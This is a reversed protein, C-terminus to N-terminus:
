VIELKPVPVIFKVGKERALANKSLIEPLYNWAFVIAYDPLERLLAGEDVIPIDTGPSLKYLKQQTSDTIFEIDKRCFGCSQIWVTSKASAGLGIIRKGDNRSKAVFGKLAAKSEAARVGFVMWSEPTINEGDLFEKVSSHVECVHDKRRLMVLIAGGHIPFRVVCHLRFPSDALLTQLAKITLYSTHEHYITDFETNDLMDKVYPVEIAVLSNRHTAVALSNVFDRWDDVHCFVHRALIIDFGNPSIRLSEEATARTLLGTITPIDSKASILALNEAPDIGCVVPAVCRVQKLFAGDNSGIELVSDFPQERSLTIILDDFHKRMMESPSTVYSYHRYLIDPDVVVSLQALTCRPCFLVQLPAFGSHTENAGAFDNALAQLGLDFVPVLRENNVGTKTGEAGLRPGYGCARCRTHYHYM